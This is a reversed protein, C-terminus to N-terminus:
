PIPPYSAMAMAGEKDGSEPLVAYFVQAIQGQACATLIWKTAIWPVRKDIRLLVSMPNVRVLRGGRKETGLQLFLRLIPLTVERKDIRMTGDREVNVVITYAVPPADGITGVRPLSLEEAPASAIILSVFLLSAIFRTM